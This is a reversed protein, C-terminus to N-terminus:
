SPDSRGVENWSYASLPLQALNQTKPNMLHQIAHGFQPASKESDALNQLWHPEANASLQGDHPLLSAGPEFNQVLHPM